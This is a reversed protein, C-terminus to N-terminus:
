GALQSHDDFPIQSIFCNDKKHPELQNTKLDLVGNLFCLRDKPERLPLVKLEDQLGKIVQDKTTLSWGEPLWAEFTPKVYDLWLDRKDMEAWIGLGEKYMYFENRASWRVNDELYDVIQKTLFSQSKTANAKKGPEQQRQPKKKKPAVAELVPHLPAGEM